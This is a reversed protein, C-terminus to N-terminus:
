STPSAISAAKGTEPYLEKWGKQILVKGSTYFLYGASDTIIVSKNNINPSMFIATFRKAVLM